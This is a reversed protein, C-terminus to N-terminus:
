RSYRPPFGPSSLALRIGAVMAGLMYVSLGAVCALTGMLSIRITVYLCVMILALRLFFRLLNHRWAREPTLGFAHDLTAKLWWSNLTALLIGLIVFLAMQFGYVWWVVGQLLAGILLGM